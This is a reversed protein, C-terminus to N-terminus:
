LGLAAPDFGEVILAAGEDTLENIRLSLLPAYEESQYFRRAADLSPFRILVTWNSNWEGELVDPQPSAALVEAGAAEFLRLVPMAYRSMYEDHDKVNLRGIMYAPLTKTSM